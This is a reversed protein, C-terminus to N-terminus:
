PHAVGDGQGVPGALVLPQALLRAVREGVGEADAVRDPGGADDEVGAGLFVLRERGRDFAGRLRDGAGEFVGVGASEQELLGGAAFLDEAGGFSGGEQRGRGSCGAPWLPRSARSKSWIASRISPAPPSLRRPRQRSEQWM